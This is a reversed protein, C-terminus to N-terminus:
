PTVSPDPLHKLIEECVGRFSNWIESNGFHLVCIGLSNLFQTRERDREMGKTEYHQSGDLEVVLKASSCYFDVIYNGIIEQRRFRAPCERLFDYWLRREEKTMNRRLSRANELLMRNREHM